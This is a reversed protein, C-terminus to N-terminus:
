EYKREFVFEVKTAIPDYNSFVIFEQGTKNDKFLYANGLLINGKGLHNTLDKLDQYDIFELELEEHSHAEVNTVTNSCSVLINAFLFICIIFLLINLSKKM